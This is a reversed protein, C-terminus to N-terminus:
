YLDDRYAKQLEIDIDEAEVKHMYQDHIIQAFKPYGEAVAQSAPDWLRARKLAKACHYFVTDVAVRVGIQPAKGNVAMGALDDAGTTLSARGRIRLTEEYGPMLFILGVHPNELINSMSDIRRNGKRDPLILTRDDVVHVFGPPDGRPSVDVHGDGGVTALVLFPSRAIFERAHGDLAPMEKGEVEKMPDGILDRLADIRDIAGTDEGM